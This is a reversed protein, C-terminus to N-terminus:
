AAGRAKALAADTKRMFDLEAESLDRDRALQHLSASVEDLAAYLDPAAAILHANAKIEVDTGDSYGLDHGHIFKLNGSVVEIDTEWDDGNPDDGSVVDAFWPGPTWKPEDAM